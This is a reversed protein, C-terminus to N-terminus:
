PLQARAEKDLLPIRDNLLINIWQKFRMIKNTSAEAQGSLSCEVLEPAAPPNKNAIALMITQYQDLWKTIGNIPGLDDVGFLATMEPKYDISEAQISKLKVHLSGLSENLSRIMEVQKVLDGAGQPSAVREGFPYAVRIPPTFTLNNISRLVVSISHLREILGYVEGPLLKRRLIPPESFLSVKPASVLDAAVSKVLSLDGSRGALQSNLQKNKASAVELDINSQDRAFYAGFLAGVCIFGASVFLSKGKNRLISGIEGYKVAIFALCMWFIAVAGTNHDLHGDSIREAAVLPLIWLLNGLALKWADSITKPLDAEAM